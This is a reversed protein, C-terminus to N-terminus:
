AADRVPWTVETRIQEPPTEPPSFYTEWMDTAGVLGQAKMAATMRNYTEVVTDYPGIHVAKMNRGSSTEGISLGAARLAEVQDARAPFGLDFTATKEDYATYHCMPMGAMEAGAAAFLAGLRGFSEGMTRAMDSMRATVTIYAFPRPTLTEITFDSMTKVRQQDPSTDTRRRGFANVRTLGSAPEVRAM